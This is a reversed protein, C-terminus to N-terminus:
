SICVSLITTIEQEPAGSIEELAEIMESVETDHSERLDGPSEGPNSKITHVISELFTTGPYVMVESQGLKKHLLYRAGGAKAYLFTSNEGRNALTAITGNPLGRATELLDPLATALDSLHESTFAASADDDLHGVEFRVKVIGDERESLDHTWDRHDSEEYAGDAILRKLALSRDNLSKDIKVIKTYSPDLNVFRIVGFERAKDSPRDLRGMRQQLRLPTWWLDYDIVLDGEDLDYGEALKDGAILIQVQKAKTVKKGVSSPSFRTRLKRLEADTGIYAEVKKSYTPKLRLALESATANRCVFILVKKGPNESIVRELEEFKKEEYHHDVM